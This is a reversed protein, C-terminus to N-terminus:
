ILVGVVCAGMFSAIAGGVMALLGIRSLDHRRNHALSDLLGAVLSPRLVDFKASLPNAVAVLQQDVRCRRGETVDAVAHPRAKAVPDVPDLMRGPDERIVADRELAGRDELGVEDEVLFPVPKRPLDSDEEVVQVAHWGVRWESEGQFAFSDDDVSM